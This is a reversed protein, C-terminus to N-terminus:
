YLYKVKDKYSKYDLACNFQALFEAAQDETLDAQFYKSFGNIRVTKLKDTMLLNKLKNDNVIQGSYGDCNYSFVYNKGEFRKGSEFLFYIESLNDICVSNSTKFIIKPFTGKTNGALIHMTFDKLDIDSSVVETKATVDDNIVKIDNCQAFGSFGSLLM